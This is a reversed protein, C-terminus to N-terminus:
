FLYGQMSHLIASGQCALFLEASRLQATSSLLPRGQTVHSQGAHLLQGNLVTGSRRRPQRSMDTSVLHVRHSFASHQEPAGTCCRRSRSDLKKEQQRGRKREILKCSQENLLVTRLRSSLHGTTQEVLLLFSQGVSVVTQGEDTWVWVGAFM